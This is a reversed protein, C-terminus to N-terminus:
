PTVTLEALQVGSHELEVEFRGPVDAVFAIVATGGAAVDQAIDYGHLHIEEAVDSRVSLRVRRGVNVSPRAIGGRPQGGEVVIAITFPAATPPAETETTTPPATETTETRETTGTAETTVTATTDGAGEGGGCGCAALALAAVLVALKTATGRM